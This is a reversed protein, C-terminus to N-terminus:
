APNRAFFSIRPFNFRRRLLTRSDNHSLSHPLLGKYGSDNVASRPLLGKYGRDNVASRPLLDKYGRDNVASNPNLLLLLACCDSQDSGDSGDSFFWESALQFKLLLNANFNLLSRHEISAFM